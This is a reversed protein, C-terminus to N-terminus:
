CHIQAIAGEAFLVGSLAVAVLSSTFLRASRSPM